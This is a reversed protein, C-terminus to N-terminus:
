ISRTCDRVVKRYITGADRCRTTTMVECIHYVEIVVCFYEM